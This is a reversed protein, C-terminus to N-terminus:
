IHILSLGQERLIDNYSKVSTLEQKEIEIKTKTDEVKLGNFECVINMKSMEKLVGSENVISEFYRLYTNLGKDRSIKLVGDPSEDFLKKGTMASEHSSMSVEEPNTGSLQCLITFLLTMWLHFEMDKSNSNFNVFEGKGNEGLGLIPIRWRNHAGSLYSYLIKKMQELYVRNVDGGSLTVMGMPTRNNSFNSSNYTISNMINTIMQIGQEVISYGRKARTFESSVFFHNKMMMKESFAALKKENKIFLYRIDDTVTPKARRKNYVNDEYQDWRDYKDNKPIVHHIYEPDALHFGLPKGTMSRRIEISIDDVDLFDNYSAGLFKVLSPKTNGLPFFFKDTFRYTLEKLAQKEVPTAQYDPNAFKLTMGPCRTEFSPKAFETFQLARTNKILRAAVSKGAMRLLRTGLPSAYKTDIYSHDKDLREGPLFEDQMLLRLFDDTVMQNIRQQPEGFTEWWNKFDKDSDLKELVAKNDNVFSEIFASPSIQTEM